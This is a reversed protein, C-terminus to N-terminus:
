AICCSHQMASHLLNPPGIDQFRRRTSFDIDTTFRSRQYHITLLVWRVAQRLAQREPQQEADVWAPNASCLL